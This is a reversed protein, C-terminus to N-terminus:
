DQEEYFKVLQEQRNDNGFDRLLEQYFEQSGGCFRLAKEIDLGPEWQQLAELGGGQLFDEEEQWGNRKEEAM